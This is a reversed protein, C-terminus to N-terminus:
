MTVNALAGKGSNSLVDIRLWPVSESDLSDVQAAPKGRVESGDELKWTPAATHQGIVKDKGDKLEAEPGELTGEVHKGAGHQGTKLTYQIREQTKKQGGLSKFGERELDLIYQESVPTGPTVHGGCLVEAIKGGLKVEYETIYEGQRMLHVGMRLAALLNEGPA